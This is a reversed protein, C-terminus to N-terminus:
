SVCTVFISTVFECFTRDKRDVTGIQATQQTMRDRTRDVHDTINDILDLHFSKKSVIKKNM